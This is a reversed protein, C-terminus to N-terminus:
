LPVNRLLHGHQNRWITIVIYFHILKGYACRTVFDDQSPSFTKKTSHIFTNDLLLQFSDVLKNSNKPIYHLIEEPQQDMNDQTAKHIAVDLTVTLYFM